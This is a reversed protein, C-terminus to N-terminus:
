ENNTGGIKNKLEILEDQTLNELFRDIKSKKLEPPIVYEPTSKILNVFDDKTHKYKIFYDNLDEKDQLGLDIVKVKCNHKDILVAADKAAGERGADDCDYCIIITKNNFNIGTLLPTQAGGLKAVANPIGMSKATLMDKEGECILLNNYKIVDDYPTCMGGITGQYKYKSESANYTSLKDSNFWTSALYLGNWTHKYILKGNSQCTFYKQIIPNSIGISNLYQIQESTLPNFTPIYKDATLLRNKITKAKALSINFYNAIFGEENSAKAGCAFCNYEGNPGIGASAKDDDHFCCHVQAQGYTIGFVFDYITYM